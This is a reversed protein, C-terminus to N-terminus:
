PRADIGVEGVHRGGKDCLRGKGVEDGDGGHQQHEEEMRGQGEEGSPTRKGMVAAGGDHCDHQDDEEHTRQAQTRDGVIEANDGCGGLHVDGKCHRQQDPHKAETKDQASM